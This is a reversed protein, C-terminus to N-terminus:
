QSLSKPTQEAAEADASPATSSTEHRSPAADLLPPLAAVLKLLAQALMSQDLAPHRALAGRIFQDRQRAQDIAIDDTHILHDNWIQFAASFGQTGRQVGRVLLVVGDNLPEDIPPDFRIHRRQTM